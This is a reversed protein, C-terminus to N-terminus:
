LSLSFLYCLFSIASFLSLSIASRPTATVSAVFPTSCPAAPETRGARLTHGEAGSMLRKARASARARADARACLARVKYPVTDYKDLFVRLQKVCCDRDSNSFDYAINWGLPGFKRREQGRGRASPHAPPHTPPSTERRCMPADPDDRRPYPPSAASTRVQMVAHFWCLSFILKKFPLVQGHTWRPSFPRCACATPERCPGSGRADRTDEKISNSGPASSNLRRVAEDFPTDERPVLGRYLAGKRSRQAPLGRVDRACGRPHFLATTKAVSDRRALLTQPCTKEARM